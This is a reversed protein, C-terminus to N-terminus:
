RGAVEHVIANLEPLHKYIDQALAMQNRTRVLNHEPYETRFYVDGELYDTLFRIGCEITMAFSSLALTDLEEATLKDALVSLYSEAFTRFIPINVAVKDLNPSDEAETNGASRIADGFDHGVLGPMVTDLDIVALAKGSHRDMLVNNIKTDNHTVRLPLKSENYLRTLTCANAEISRIYDLEPQVEKVRGMADKEVAQWLNRFRQITNHFDPITEHLEEAPFDALQQQFQGFAKGAEAVIALDEGSSYTTSDIYNQLRWFGSEDAFYNKGGATTYFTPNAGDPNKAAIHRTAKAINEMMLEPQKFVYTNVSQLLGDFASGDALTLSLRYTRNIHGVKIEEVSNLRCNPFFQQCIPELNM